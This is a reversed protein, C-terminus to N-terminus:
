PLIHENDVGVVAVQEPVALGLQACTDLVHLGRVDNCTM